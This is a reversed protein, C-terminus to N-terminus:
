PERTAVATDGAPGTPTLARALAQLDLDPVLRSTKGVQVMPASRLARFPEVPVREGTGPERWTLPEIARLADVMFAVHGDDVAVLLLCSTAPSGARSRGLVTALCIVPVAAQRHVVVGLVAEDASTQLLHAPYPLIEGVRDLPTVMDVGATYVLYPQGADDPEDSTENTATVQLQEDTLATNVSAMSVLEPEAGLAQGDLVLCASGDALQATGTILDPRSTAQAPFRLIENETIEVLDLLEDVALIVYGPGLDLVLGAGFHDSTARGLGLVYLPDAVPVTAAAYDVVGRCVSGALVSPRMALQPLTTHVHEIDLALVHAGCRVTVLRRVPATADAVDAAADSAAGARTRDQVLPLGPRDLVASADLVSIAEGTGPHLFSHSFLLTGSRVAAPVLNGAPVRVVGCVEDALLGLAAGGDAIVVVVQDAARPAPRGIVPRLDLVPLVLTRLEMAGLLGEAAAPLGSLHEPCPVVERLADLPVAVCMGSLRLLGLVGTGLADDMGQDIATLDATM